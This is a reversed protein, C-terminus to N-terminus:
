RKATQASCVAAAIAAAERRGERDPCRGVPVLDKAVAESVCITQEGGDSSHVTVPLVVCGNTSSNGCRPSLLAESLDPPPVCRGHEGEFGEVGERGREGGGSM